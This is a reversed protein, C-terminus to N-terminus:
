PKPDPSKFGPKLLVFDPKSTKVGPKAPNPGPKSAKTCFDLLKRTRQKLPARHISRLREPPWSTVQISVLGCAMCNEGKFRESKHQLNMLLPAQKFIDLALGESAEDCALLLAHIPFM